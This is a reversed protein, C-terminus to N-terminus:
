NSTYVTLYFLKNTLIVCCRLKKKNNYLTLPQNIKNFRFILKIPKERERCLFKMVKMKLNLIRITKYSSILFFIHCSM